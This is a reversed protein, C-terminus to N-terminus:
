GQSRLVRKDGVRLTLREQDFYEGLPVTWKRTQGVLEKFAQIDMDPHAKLYAVVRTRLGDIAAADFYMDDKVRVARGESRLLKLAEAVQPAPFKLAEVLEPVRPPALQAQALTDRIRQVLPSAGVGTAPKKGPRRVLDGDVEVQRAETLAELVRQLLRPPLASALLNRLAERSLGPSLPHLTAHDDLALGARTRLGEFHVAAIARREARDFLLVEGRTTLLTLAREAAKPTLALRQALADLPAGDFGADVFLALLRAEPSGERLVEVHRAAEAKRHRHRRPHPDLVTGGAITRGRGAIQSFGRLIFRQGSLAAVEEGLTLQVPAREGPALEVRDLLTVTAASVATGLHLLVKARTKLARPAVALLELDVDLMRTPRLSGATALVMGRRVETTEIGAVNVAARMGAAVSPSTKGYAQVGRVRLGRPGGPLLDVADEPKLTGTLLTGTTVTGFGKVTFARDLPLYAPGEVPRPAVEIALRGLTQKLAELGEGTRSSCAVVPAGELFSGKLAETLDARAMAVLEPGLTEALDSKTLAVLGRQVGLLRCIDLHERTQPMVGEDLAVVLMVLDLGFAGAAMARVFREHGPVDVVGAVSGDPLTLHAFGLEITIGRKKEEALRDTDIGTLAKVLSTKGHDVHGATGLVIRAAM